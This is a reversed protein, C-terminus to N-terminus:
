LRLRLAFDDKCGLHFICAQEPEFIKRGVHQMGRDEDFARAHQKWKCALDKRFRCPLATEWGQHKVGDIKGPHILLAHRLLRGGRGSERTRGIGGSQPRASKPSSYRMRRVSPM